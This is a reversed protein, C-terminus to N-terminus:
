NPVRVANGSSPLGFLSPHLFAALTETGDILRPGPRSLLANSDMAWVETSSAWEWEERALLERAAEAARGVDYGCPAIVLIEPDAARIAETSRVTSHEGAVAMM